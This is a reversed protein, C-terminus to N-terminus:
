KSPQLPSAPSRPPVKSPSEKGDWSRSGRARKQKPPEKRSYSMTPMTTGSAAALAPIVQLHGAVKDGRGGDRGQRM